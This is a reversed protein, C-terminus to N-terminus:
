LKLADNKTNFPNPLNSEDRIRHQLYNLINNRLVDQFVQPNHPKIGEVLMKEMEDKTNKNNVRKIALIYMGYIVWIACTVGIQQPTNTLHYCEYKKEYGSYCEQLLKNRIMHVVINNRSSQRSKGNGVDSHIHWMKISAEDLLLALFTWHSGFGGEQKIMGDNVPFLIMKGSKPDPFRSFGLLNQTDYAKSHLWPWVQNPNLLIPLEESKFQHVDLLNRLILVIGLLVNDAIKLESSDRLNDIM